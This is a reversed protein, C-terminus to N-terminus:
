QEEGTFPEWCAEIRDLVWANGHDDTHLAGVPFHYDDKDPPENRIINFSTRIREEKIVERIIGKIWERIM